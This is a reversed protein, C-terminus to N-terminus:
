FFKNVECSFKYISTLVIHSLWTILQSQNKTTIALPSNCSTRFANLTRTYLKQVHNNCIMNEQSTLLKFKGIYRFQKKTLFYFLISLPINEKKFVLWNHRNSFILFHVECKTWYCNMAPLVVRTRRYVWVPIGNFKAALNSKYIEPGDFDFPDDTGVTCQLLYDTTLIENEFYKNSSFHFKQGSLSIKLRFGTSKTVM